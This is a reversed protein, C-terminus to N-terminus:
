DCLSTRVGYYTARSRERVVPAFSRIQRRDSRNTRRQASSASGVPSSNSIVGGLPSRSVNASVSVPRVANAGTPSSYAAASTPADYKEEVNVESQHPSRLSSATYTSNPRSSHVSPSRNRVPHDARPSHGHNPGDAAGDYEAMGGFVDPPNIFSDGPPRPIIENGDEDHVIARQMHECITIRRELARMSEASLGSYWQNPPYNSSIYIKKANFVVYSNKVEVLDCMFCLRVCNASKVKPTRGVKAYSLTFTANPISRAKGLLPYRDLIRLLYDFPFPQGVFDEIVVESEGNQCRYTDWWKSLDKRYGNPCERNIRRSKGAGADGQSCL